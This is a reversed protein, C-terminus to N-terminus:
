AHLESRISVYTEKMAWAGEHEVAISTTTTTTTTADIRLGRCIYPLTSNKYGSPPQSGGGEGRDTADRPGPSTVAGQGSIEGVDGAAM